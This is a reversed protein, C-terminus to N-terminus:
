LGFQKRFKDLLDNSKNSDGLGRLYEQMLPRIFEKWLFEKAKTASDFEKNKINLAYAHGLQYDSGLFDEKKIAENLDKFSNAINDAYQKLESKIVEYNPNIEEWSFRRRLAFDFSDVSRDITNMTGIIYVNHPIFFYNQNDEWFYVGSDKKNEVLYSYQTKIKGNYGRYELAYMLEGFVRSLDARNIEDIIFFAPEIIDQLTLGNSYEDLKPFIMKINTINKVDSVTIDEFDKDKAIKRFEEIKWLEFEIKGAKKCFIKFVGNKLKLEKDKTPRIGEIFDEYSISPHFQMTEIMHKKVPLTKLAWEDIFKEAEKKAKYTKGTGPAGYYVVAQKLNLEIKLMDHLEWYFIQKHYNDVEKDKMKEIDKLQEMLWQHKEVRSSGEVKISLKKDLANVLRDLKNPADVSTINNPFLTKLFRFRVTNYNIEVDLLEKIKNNVFNIDNSLLIDKLFNNDDKVRQTIQQRHPNKDSKYIFGQGIDATGNDQMFLYRKLFDDISNLENKSGDKICDELSKDSNEQCQKKIDQLIDSWNKLSKYWNWNNVDNNSIFFEFYQQLKDKNELM